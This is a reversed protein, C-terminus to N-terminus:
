IIIKVNLFHPILKELSGMFTYANVASSGKVGYRKVSKKYFPFALGNKNLIEVIQEETKDRLDIIAKM